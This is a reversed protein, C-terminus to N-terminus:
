QNLVLKIRNCGTGFIARQGDRVLLRACDKGAQIMEHIASVYTIEIVVLSRGIVAKNSSRGRRWLNFHQMTTGHTRGQADAALPFQRNRAASVAGRATPSYVQARYGALHRQNGARPAHINVRFYLVQNLIMAQAHCKRHWVYHLLGRSLACELHASTGNRSGSWFIDRLPCLFRDIAERLLTKYIHAITSNTQCNEIATQGLVLHCLVFILLHCNGNGQQTTYFPKRTTIKGTPASMGPRHLMRGLALAQAMVLEIISQDQM